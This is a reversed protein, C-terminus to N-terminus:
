LVIALVAALLVLGIIGVSLLLKERKLNVPKPPTDDDPKRLKGLRYANYLWVLLGVVVAIILVYKSYRPLHM